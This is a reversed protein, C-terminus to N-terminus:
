EYTGRVPWVYFQAAINSGNLCGLHMGINWASNDGIAVSTSSWYTDLQINIFPDGESWQETGNTNSL